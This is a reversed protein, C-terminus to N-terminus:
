REIREIIEQVVQASPSKLHLYIERAEKLYVLGQVVNLNAYVLLQGMMVLTAAKSQVDGIQETIALSQQYLDIAQEVQGPHVYIYAMDHLTIAKGKLNGVQEYISLSQQYLDIAKEGQGQNVYILALYNLTEAKSQINGIQEHIAISQKYLDIAKEGQGQDAYIGAMQSLTCAKGQVNGTQEDIELVQQYLNIAHEGQGQNAYIIALCHLTSAKSQVDGIQEHIALSQQCLDIAQEVQGQNAYIMAIGALINSKMKVDGIQETIALSQQYLNIAQEVQGKNAYIGAMQHLTTAKGQVNGIQETIALSQQYLEIAQKMKGQTQYLDGMQHLTSAQSQVNGIQKTIALSQQYLEIAQEMQGQNVYIMAMQHLTSAKFDSDEETCRELVQQHLELGKQPNGSEKEAIALETMVGLNNSIAITSRCLRLITPYDSVKRLQGSLVDAIMGAIEGDKGIIALRHIELWKEKTSTEAEQYWVRYVERAAVIALQEDDPEVLPLVRSVRVTGEPMVELLGLSISREIEVEGCVSKFVEIPVALRFVLGKVLVAKGKASVMGLLLEALVDSRFAERTSELKTLVASEDVLGSVLVRDLAMLFRPNGDAIAEVRVLWNTLRDVTGQDKQKQATEILGTVALQKRKKDLEAADMGALPLVTYRSELGELRYRCTVIVRHERGSQAIAQELERLVRAAETKLQLATTSTPLQSSVPDFGEFNFEFDDLVILLKEDCVEFVDRLRYMLGDNSDFLRDRLTKSRVKGAMGSVLGAEDLMGIRVVREFHGLRDCLRAAVSSKGLGGM